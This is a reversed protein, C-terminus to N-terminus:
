HRAPEYGLFKDTYRFNYLMAVALVSSLIDAIETTEISYSIVLEEGDGNKQLREDLELASQLQELRERGEEYIKTIDNLRTIFEIQVPLIIDYLGPKILRHETAGEYIHLAPLNRGWKGWVGGDGEYTYPREMGKRVRRSIEKSVEYRVRSIM